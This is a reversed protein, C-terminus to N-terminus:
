SSSASPALFLACIARGATNAQPRAYGLRWLPLRGPDALPRAYRPWISPLRGDAKSIQPKGPCAYTAAPKPAKPRLQPSLKAARGASAISADNLRAVRPLWRAAAPLRQWPMYPRMARTLIAVGAFGATLAFLQTGHPIDQTPMASLRLAAARARFPPLHGLASRLAALAAPWPVMRGVPQMGLALDLKAGGRTSASSAVNLWSSRLLLSTPGKAQGLGQGTLGNCLGTPGDPTIASPRQM